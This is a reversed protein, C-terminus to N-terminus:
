PALMVYITLRSELSTLARFADDAPADGLQWACRKTGAHELCMSRWTTNALAPSPTSPSVLAETTRVQALVAAVDSIDGDADQDERGPTGADRGSHRISVHLHSGEVAWTTTTAHSDSSAEGSSAVLTFSEQAPASSSASAAGEAPEPVTSTTACASSLACVVAAFARGASLSLARVRFTM